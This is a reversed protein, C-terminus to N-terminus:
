RMDGAPLLQQLIELRLGIVVGAPDVLQTTRDFHLDGHRNAQAIISHSAAFQRCRPECTPRLRRQPTLAHHAVNETKSVLRSAVDLPSQLHNGLGALPELLAFTVIRQAPGGVELGHQVEFAPTVEVRPKPASAAELENLSSEMSMGPLGAQKVREKRADRVLEVLDLLSERMEFQRLAAHAFVGM